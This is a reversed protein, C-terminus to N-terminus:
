HPNGSGLIEEEKSEPPNGRNLAGRTRQYPAIDEKLTAGMLKVTNTAAQCMMVYTNPLTLTKPSRGKVGCETMAKPMNGATERGAAEPPWREVSQGKCPPLNGELLKWSLALDEEHPMFGCQTKAM